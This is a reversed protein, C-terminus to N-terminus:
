PRGGTLPAGAISRTRPHLSQPDILITARIHSSCHFNTRADRAYGLGACAVCAISRMTPQVDFSTTM